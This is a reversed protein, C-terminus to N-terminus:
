KKRLVLYLGFLSVVVLGTYLYTPEIESASIVRIARTQNLTTNGFKLKVRLSYYGDETGHKVLDELEFNVTKNAPVFIERKNAIWGQGVSNFGKYVYSYATLNLEKDSIVSVNVDFWQGTKVEAPTSINYDLSYAAGVTLLIVAVLIAKRHM